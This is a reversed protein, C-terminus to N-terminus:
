QPITTILLRNRALRVTRQGFSAHLLVDRNMDDLHRSLEGQTSDYTKAPDHLRLLELDNMTVSRAGMGKPYHRRKADRTQCTNDRTSHLMPRSPPPLHGKKVITPHLRHNPDALRNSIYEQRGTDLHVQESHDWATDIGLLKCLSIALEPPM